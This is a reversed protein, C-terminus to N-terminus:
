DFMECLDAASLTDLSSARLALFLRFNDTTAVHPNLVSLFQVIATRQM